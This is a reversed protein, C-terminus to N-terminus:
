EFIEQFLKRHKSIFYQSVPITGNTYNPVIRNILAKQEFSLDKAENNLMENTANLIEDATNDRWTMGTEFGTWNQLYSDLGGLPSDLLKSFSVETGSSDMLIKPISMSKPFFAVKGLAVANTILVPVGFTSPVASPGSNTGVMFRCQSLAFVDMHEPLNKVSSFDVLGNIKPLPTMDKNGIRIVFGGLSKVLDIMPIYTTPNANRAYFKSNADFKNERVHLTIFWSNRKIGYKELFQWGLEAQKEPFSLLPTLEGVSNFQQLAYNHATLFDLTGKNTQVTFVDEVIPWLIKNIKLLEQPKLNVVPFYSNFLNAYFSNTQGDCLFMYNETTLQLKKLMARSGLGGALHGIQNFASGLLKVNPNTLGIKGLEKNKICAADIWKRTAKEFEGQEYEIFSSAMLKKYHAELKDTESNSEGKANITDRLETISQHLHHINKKAIGEIVLITFQFLTSLLRYMRGIFKDVM